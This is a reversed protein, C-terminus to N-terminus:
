RRGHEFDRPDLDRVRFQMPAIHGIEIMAPLEVSHQADEIGDVMQEFVM